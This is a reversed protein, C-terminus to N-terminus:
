GLLRFHLLKFPKSNKFKCVNAGSRAFANRKRKTILPLCWHRHPILRRKHKTDPVSKHLERITKEQHGSGFEMKPREASLLWMAMMAHQQQRRSHCLPRSALLRRSVHGDRHWLLKARSSQNGSKTCTSEQDAVTDWNWKNTQIWLTPTRDPKDPSLLSEYNMLQCGGAM